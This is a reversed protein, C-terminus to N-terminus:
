LTRAEEVIRGDTGFAVYEGRRPRYVYGTIDGFLKLKGGQNNYHERCQRGVYEVQEEEPWGPVEVPVSLYRWTAGTIAAITISTPTTLSTRVYIDPRYVPEPLKGEGHCNPCRGSGKCHQCAPATPAPLRLFFGTRGCGRCRLCVGTGDCKVCHIM